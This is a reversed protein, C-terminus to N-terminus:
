GACRAWQATSALARVAPAASSAQIGFLGMDRLAGLSANIEDDSELAAMSWQPFARVAILRYELVVLQCHRPDRGIRGLLHELSAEEGELYQMFAGRLHCLVGTIGLSANNRRSTRLIAAIDHASPSKSISRYIVRALMHSNDARRITSVLNSRIPTKAMEGRRCRLILFPDSDQSGLSRDMENIFHSIPWWQEIVTRTPSFGLSSQLDRM